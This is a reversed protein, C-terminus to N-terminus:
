CDNDYNRVIQIKAVFGQKPIHIMEPFDMSVYWERGDIVRMVFNRLFDEPKSYETRKVGLAVEYYDCDPNLNITKFIDEVRADLEADVKIYKVARNVDSHEARVGFIEEFVREVEERKRRVEYVEEFVRLFKEVSLVEIVESLM